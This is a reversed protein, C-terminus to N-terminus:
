FIRMGQTHAPPFHKLNGTVLAEAGSALAVELFADDDPDPLAVPLPETHVFVGEQFVYDLYSEVSAADLQFKPRTLVTKYEYMIRADYCITLSGNISLRLLYAPTGAPNLFGSVVVNTDLVVKM